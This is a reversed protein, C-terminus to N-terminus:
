ESVGSTIAGNGPITATVQATLSASILILFPKMKQSGRIARGTEKGGKRDNRKFIWFVLVGFLVALMLVVGLDDTTAPKSLLLVPLLRIM